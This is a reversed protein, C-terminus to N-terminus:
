TLVASDDVTKVRRKRRAMHANAERELRELTGAMTAAEIALQAIEARTSEPMSELGVSHRGATAAGRLFKRMTRLYITNADTM